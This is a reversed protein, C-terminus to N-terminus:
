YDSLCTPAIGIAEIDFIQDRQFSRDGSIRVRRYDSISFVPCAQEDLRGSCIYESNGFHISQGKRANRLTLRLWGHVGEGFEYEVGDEILDFYKYGRRRNIKLAPYFYDYLTIPSAQRTRQERANLWLAQDFNTSRWNTNHYRGDITEGGRGNLASNAKRCLWDGNSEYSFPQGNNGRGHYIISIQKQNVHPYAPSYIVAVVNTDSRLYPTVDFNMVVVDDSYPPRLPYFVATGVNYENIYLKYYGTSAITIHGERPRGQQLYCKRFWIHSISDPEPTSIWHTNFEQAFSGIAWTIICCILIIQKM